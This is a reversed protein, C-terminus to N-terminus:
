FTAATAAALCRVPGRPISLDLRRWSIVLGLELARGSPEPTTAAPVACRRADAFAVDTGDDLVLRLKTFRPPWEEDNNIRVYKAAGVGKVSLYGTMGFHMLLDPGKESLDFWFYKGKRLVADIQRGTLAKAVENPTHGQFVEAACSM